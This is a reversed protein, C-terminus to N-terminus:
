VVADRHKMLSMAHRLAKGRTLFRTLLKRGDLTVQWQGYRGDIVLRRCLSRYLGDTIRELKVTSVQNLM